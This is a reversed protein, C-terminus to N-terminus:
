PDGRGEDIISQSDAAIKDGYIRQLRTKFDPWQQGNRDASAPTPSATDRELARVWEIFLEKEAPPLSAAQRILEIASM